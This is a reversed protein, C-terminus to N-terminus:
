FGEVYIAGNAVNVAVLGEGNGLTGTVRYRKIEANQLNLGVVTVRGRGAEASFQASTTQPIRLTIEGNAASLILRKGLPLTVQADIIGNALNVFTGGVIEGLYVTGNALDVSVNGDIRQVTMDGNAGDVLVGFERPVTVTYDVIYNRGETNTPQMTHVIVSSDTSDVDVEIESLRDNADVQSDSEVCKVAFISIDTAGSVGTVSVTGNVSVLVLQQRSARTVDVAFTDQASFRNRPPYVDNDCATLLALSFLPMVVSTRM